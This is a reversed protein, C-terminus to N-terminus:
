ERQGESSATAPRRNARLAALDLEMLGDGAQPWDKLAVEIADVSARQTQWRYRGRADALTCWRAAQHERSLVPEAEAAVEVLFTPVLYVSDNEPNYFSELPSLRWWRAADLGTEEALEREAARWAPEGEEIHGHVAQWDGPFRHDDPRQLLLLEVGSGAPRVVYVSILNARVQAM